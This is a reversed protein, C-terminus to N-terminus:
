ITKMLRKDECQIKTTLDKALNANEQQILKLTEQRESITGTM